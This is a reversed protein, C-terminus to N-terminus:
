SSPAWAWCIRLPRARTAAALGRSASSARPPVATPVPSLAGGSKALFTIARSAARVPNANTPAGFRKSAIAARSAATSSEPASRVTATESVFIALSRRQSAEPGRHPRPSSTSGLRWGPLEIM